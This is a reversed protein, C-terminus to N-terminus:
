FDGSLSFRHVDGLDPYSAYAYDLRYSRASLGLGGTFGLADDGQVGTQRTSYGPRVYLGGPLQLEAGMTVFADGDNPMNLDAVLVVPVPMHAPHHAVGIRFDVPLSDEYNGTYGSRVTGVNSLSAGFTLGEVPTHALLGFDAMYADSSYDDISSYVGKLNVGAVLWHRWVPQAMTLYVAVDSAGFTGLDQGTADTKRMDGYTVYTVSVAWARRPGPVAVTAHGAQTDILYNTLSLTGTRGRIGYLGAPNWGPADVDAALATFAGGMAAPRAGVGIKLFNYGTTGADDSLAAGQQAAALVVTLSLALIRPM